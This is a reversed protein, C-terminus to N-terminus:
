ILMNDVNYRFSTLEIIKSAKIIRVVASDSTYKPTSLSFNLASHNYYEKRLPHHPSVLNFIGDLRSNLVLNTIGNVADEQHIFNICGMPNGITKGQLQFIPNRDEGILGGLRVIISPLSSNIILKECSHLAKASPTEPNVASSENYVGESSGYVSTSSLFIIRKLPTSEINELLTKIMRVYVGEKLKRGPPVSVILTELKEIFLKIGTTQNEGLIVRYGKIGNNNLNSTGEESRCSGKINYNLTQLHKGLPIGLWGCGLIGLSSM